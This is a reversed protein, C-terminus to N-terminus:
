KAEGHSLEGHSMDNAPSPLGQNQQTEQASAELAPGGEYDWPPRGDAGQLRGGISLEFRPAVANGQGDVPALRAYMFTRLDARIRELRDFAELKSCGLEAALTEPTHLLQRASEMVPDGFLRRVVELVRRTALNRAGPPRGARDRRVREIMRAHEESGPEFRTPPLLELQELEGPVAAAAAEAIAAVGAPATM